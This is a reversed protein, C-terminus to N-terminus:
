GFLNSINSYYAFNGPKVNAKAQLEQNVMGFSIMIYARERLAEKMSKKYADSVKQM